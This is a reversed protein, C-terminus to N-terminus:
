IERIAKLCEAELYRNDSSYFEWLEERREDLLERRASLSGPHLMLELAAGKKEAYSVYESLLSDVIGYKMDCTYFIGFFVPAEMDKKKLINRNRGASSKLILWKLINVPKIKERGRVKLVPCLPDVPIRVQRICLKKFEEESLVSMLCDFVLPIMHYHQHSDVATIDFDYEWTVARFQARIEECLQAKLAQRFNGHATYNWMFLKVFSKDFYGTSDVLLPVKEAGALPRGEVFNLHLVRRIKHEADAGELLELAGGLDTVNPMVSISNLAGDRFCDLIKGCQELSVGYDDAHYYISGRYYVNDNKRDM